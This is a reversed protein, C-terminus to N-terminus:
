LVKWKMESGRLKFAVYVCVCMCTCVRQVISLVCMRWFTWLSGHTSSDSTATVTQPTDSLNRSTQSPAAVSPVPTAGPLQTMVWQAEKTRSGVGQPLHIYIPRHPLQPTGEPGVGQPSYGEPKPCKHLLALDTPRRTCPRPLGLTSPCLPSPTLSACLM